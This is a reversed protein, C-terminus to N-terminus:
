AKVIEIGAMEYAYLKTDLVAENGEVHGECNVFNVTDFPVNIKVRLQNIRDKHLNWVGLAVARDDEKMLTYHFPHNGCVVAPVERRSLWPLAEMMQRRRAYNQAFSRNFTRAEHALVLFRLGDANEFCYVATGWVGRHQVRSLVQVGDDHMVMPSNWGMGVHTDENLFHEVTTSHFSLDRAGTWESTGRVGVDVGREQLLRAAELDVIAGNKLRELPVSRANEGFLLLPATEDDYTLPLSTRVAFHLAANTIPYETWFRTYDRATDWQQSMEVYPYVGISNKGGFLRDIEEYLVANEVHIDVYGTEYDANSAYDLNYKQIGDNEGSARLITDFCEMTAAPVAFRPRPYSDGESFIETEPMYRRFWTAEQREYEVVDGLEKEARWIDTNEAWYPAGILRVLPRTNGALAAAIEMATHGSGDFSDVCACFGLRVTPDIEDLAARLQRSLSVMSEGQVKLWADRYRNRGGVFAKQRFEETSAFNEGVEQEIQAMHESCCCGLGGRYNLRYDDDLIIADAGCRAVDQVWNALDRRFDEGLPCFAHTAGGDFTYLPAYKGRDVRPAGDHGISEGLWVMTEFGEARFFILNDRLAELSSPSSFAHDLERYLILNVRDAKCRRLEKLAVKRDFWPNTIVLPCTLKYM